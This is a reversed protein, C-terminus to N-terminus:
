HELYYQSFIDKKRFIKEKNNVKREKEDYLASVFM